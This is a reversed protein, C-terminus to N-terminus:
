MSGSLCLASAIIPDLSYVISDLRVMAVISQSRHLAPHFRKVLKLVTSRISYQIYSSYLIATVRKPSVIFLYGSHDSIDRDSGGIIHIWLALIYKFLVSYLRLVIAIINNSFLDQM